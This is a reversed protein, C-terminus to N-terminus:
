RGNHIQEKKYQRYLLRRQIRQLKSAPSVVASAWTLAAVAEKHSHVRTKGTLIHDAALAVSEIDGATVAWGLEIARAAMECLLKFFRGGEPAGQFRGLMAPTLLHDRNLPLGTVAAVASRPPSPIPPPPISAILADVDLAAGAQAVFENAVGAWLAPIFFLRNANKTARDVTGGLLANFAHWLAVYESPSYERTVECMFRLRPAAPTHHTTTYGVCNVGEFKAMLDALSWGHDVDLAFWSGCGDIHNVFKGVANPHLVFPAVFPCQTNKHEDTSPRIVREDRLMEVFVDWDDADLVIPQTDRASTGYSLRM